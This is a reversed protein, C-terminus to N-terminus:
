QASTIAELKVQRLTEEELEGNTETSWSPAGTQQELEINMECNSKSQRGYM